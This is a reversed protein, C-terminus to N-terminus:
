LRGPAGIWPSCRVVVGLKLPTGSRTGRDTGVGICSKLAREGELGRGGRCSAQRRGRVNEGEVAVEGGWREVREKRFGPAVDGVM